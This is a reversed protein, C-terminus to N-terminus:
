VQERLKQIDALTMFNNEADPDEDASSDSDPLPDAKITLDIDAYPTSNDSGHIFFSKGTTEQSFEVEIYNLDTTERNINGEMVNTADQENAQKTKKPQGNTTVESTVCKREEHSPMSVRNATYSVKGIQINRRRDISSYGEEQLLESEQIRGGVQDANQHIVPAPNNYMENNDLRQQDNEENYIRCISVTVIGEKHEGGVIGQCSYKGVDSKTFNYVNISLEGKNLNINISYKFKFEPNIVNMLVIPKTEEYYWSVNDKETMKLPCIIEATTYEKVFTM